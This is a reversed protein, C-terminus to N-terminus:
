CFLSIYFWRRFGERSEGAEGGVDGDVVGRLRGGSSRVCGALRGGRDQEAGPHVGAGLVDLVVRPRVRPQVRARADDEDGNVCALEEELAFGSAASVDARGDRREEGRHLHTSTILFLLLLPEEDVGEAVAPRPAHIADGAGIGGRRTPPRPQRRARPQDIRRRADRPEAPVHVRQHHRRPPQRPHRPRRVDHGDRGHRRQHVDHDVPARAPHPALQHPAGDLAHAVLAHQAAATRPAVDVTPLIPGDIPTIDLAVSAHRLPLAEHHHPLQDM